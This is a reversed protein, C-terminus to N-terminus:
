LGKQRRCRARRADYCQRRRVHLFTLSTIKLRQDVDMTDARYIDRFIQNTLLRKATLFPRRRGLLDHLEQGAIWVSPLTRVRTRNELMLRLPGPRMHTTGTPAHEKHLVFSLNQRERTPEGKVDIFQAMHVVPDFVILFEAPLQLSLIARDGPMLELSDLVVREVIEEFEVDAPLNVGSGWFVQRYYDWIPLSHPDHAAIKRVRPSVTFTAEVMEDLTPEYGAACLSCSYEPRDVTKLSTGFELVGGCGPCLVNWQLEFIGLRAGHLFAGIVHEEDLNHLAAFDLANIRCLAPDPAHQVLRKIADAVDPEAAQRLAAFLTETESMRQCIPHPLADPFALGQKPRGRSPEAAMSRCIKLPQGGTIEPDGIEGDPTATV